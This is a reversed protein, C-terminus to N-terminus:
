IQPIFVLVLLAPKVTLGV